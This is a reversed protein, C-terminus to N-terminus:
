GDWHARYVARTEDVTALTVKPNRANSHEFVAEFVAVLQQLALGAFLHPPFTLVVDVDTPGVFEAALVSGRHVAAWRATAKPIIWSPSIFSMVSRYMLSRFFTRNQAKVWGLYQADTMRFHDAVAISLARAEVEPMWMSSPPRALYRSLPEPVQSPDPRPLPMGELHTLSLSTKVQCEPYSGLGAPLAALYASLRPYRERTSRDARAPASAHPRPEM